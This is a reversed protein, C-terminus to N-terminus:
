LKIRDTKRTIIERMEARNFNLRSNREELMLEAALEVNIDRNKANPITLMRKVATHIYQM